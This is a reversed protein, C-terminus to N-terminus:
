RSGQPPEANMKDRLKRSPQFTVTRRSPIIIAEGTQPNRGKKAWRFRVRFKGFGTILVDDGKVLSDKILEFVRHVVRSARQRSLYVREMEPFLARQLPKPRRELSVKQRVSEALRAKTLTMSGEPDNLENASDRM